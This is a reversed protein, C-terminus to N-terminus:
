FDTLAQRSHALVRPSRPKTTAPIAIQNRDAFSVMQRPLHRVAAFGYLRVVILKDQIRQLPGINKKPPGFYSAVTRIIIPADPCGRLKALIWDVPHRGEDFLAAKPIILLRGFM